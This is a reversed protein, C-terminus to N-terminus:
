STQIGAVPFPCTFMHSPLPSRSLVKKLDRQSVASERYWYRVFSQATLIIEVLGGVFPLTTSLELKQEIYAKEQEKSLSAFDWILEALLSPLRRVQNAILCVKQVHPIRVNYIDRFPLRGDDLLTHQKLEDWKSKANAESPPPPNIAAVWFINSRSLM